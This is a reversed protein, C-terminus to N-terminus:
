RQQIQVPTEAGGLEPAASSVPPESGNVDHLKKRERAWVYDNFIGANARDLLDDLFRILRNEVTESRWFLYALVTAVFVLLFALCGALLWIM